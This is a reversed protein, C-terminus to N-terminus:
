NYERLPTNLILDINTNKDNRLNFIELENVHPFKKEAINAKNSLKQILLKKYKQYFTKRELDQM